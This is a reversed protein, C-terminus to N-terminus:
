GFPVHTPQPHRIPEFGGQNGLAIWEGRHLGPAQLSPSQPFHNLQEPQERGTAVNASQDPAFADVHHEGRPAVDSSRGDKGSAPAADRHHQM